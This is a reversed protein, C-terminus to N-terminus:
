KFVRPKNQSDQLPKCMAGQNLIEAKDLLQQVKQGQDNWPRSGSAKAQRKGTGM